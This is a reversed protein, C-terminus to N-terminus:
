PCRKRFASLDPIFWRSAHRKLTGMPSPHFGEGKPSAKLLDRLSRFRRLVAASLRRDPRSRFDAEASQAHKHRGFGDGEPSPGKLWGGGVADQAPKKIVEGVVPCGGRECGDLRNCVNYQTFPIDRGAGSRSPGSTERVSLFSATRDHLLGTEGKQNQGEQEGGSAANESLIGLLSADDDECALVLVPRNGPRDIYFAPGTDGADAM